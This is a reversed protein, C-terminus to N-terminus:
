YHLVIAAVWVNQGRRGDQYFLVRFIDVGVALELTSVLELDLFGEPLIVWEASRTMTKVPVLEREPVWPLVSTSRIELNIKTYRMAEWYIRWGELVNNSVGVGHPLVADRIPRMWRQKNSAGLDVDYKLVLPVKKQPWRWLEKWWILDCKDWLM